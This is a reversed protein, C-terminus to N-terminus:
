QNPGFIDDAADDKQNISLTLVDMASLMILELKVEEYNHKM